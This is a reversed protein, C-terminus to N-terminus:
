GKLTTWEPFERGTLQTLEQTQKRQLPRLYQMVEATDVDLRNKQRRVMRGVIKRVSSPVCDIAFRFFPNEHRLRHLVGSLIPQAVLEPTKNSPELDLTAAADDLNLWQLISGIVERPNGIM